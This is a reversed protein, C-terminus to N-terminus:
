KTGRGSMSHGTGAHRGAGRDTRKAEVESLLNLAALMSKLRPTTPTTWCAPGRVESRVAVLRLQTHGDGLGDLIEQWNVGEVLGVATARLATEVSHRGIMPMHVHMTERQYHLRFRIGDLGLGEVRDAWLEAEPSLGYFFVRAKTM